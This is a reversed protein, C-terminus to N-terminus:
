SSILRNFDDLTMADMMGVKKVMGPPFLAFVASARSRLRDESDYLLAEMIAERESKVATVRGEARLESEIYVPKIFSVEISKTLVM